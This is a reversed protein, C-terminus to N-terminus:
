LTGVGTGLRDLGLSCGGALIRYRSGSMSWVCVASGLTAPTGGGAWLMMVLAFHGHAILHRSSHHLQLSAQSASRSKLYM